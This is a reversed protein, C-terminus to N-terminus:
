LISKSAEVGRRLWRSSTIRTLTTQDGCFFLFFIFSEASIGCIGAFTIVLLPLLHPLPKAVGHHRCKGQDVCTGLVFTRTLKARPTTLGPSVRRRHGSLKGPITNARCVCVHVCECHTTCVGATLRTDCERVVSGNDAM